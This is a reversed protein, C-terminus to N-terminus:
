INGVHGWSRSLKFRIRCPGRLSLVHLPRVSALWHCANLVRWVRQCHTCRFLRRIFDDPQPMLWIARSRYFPFDSQGAIPGINATAIATLAWTDYVRRLVGENGKGDGYGLEQDITSIPSDSHKATVTKVTLTRENIEFGSSTSSLGAPGDDLDKERKKRPRTRAIISSTVTSIPDKLWKRREKQIASVTRAHNSQAIQRKSTEINSISENLSSSSPKFISGSEFDSPTTTASTSRGSVSVTSSANTFPRSVHSISSSATRALSPRTIAHQPVLPTQSNALSPYGVSIAATTNSATTGTFAEMRIVEDQQVQVGFDAGGGGDHLRRGLHWRPM